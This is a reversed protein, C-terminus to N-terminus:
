VCPGRAGGKSFEPGFRAKKHLVTVAAMSIPGAEPGSGVPVGGQLALASIAAGLMRGSISAALALYAALKPSLALRASGGERWKANSTHMSPARSLCAPCRDGARSWAGTSRLHAHAGM